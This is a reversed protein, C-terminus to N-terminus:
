SRSPLGSVSSDTVPGSVRAICTLPNASSRGVQVRAQDGACIRRSVSVDPTVSITTTGADFCSSPVDLRYVNGQRSRVYVAGSDAVRFNEVQDGTFCAQAATSQGAAVPQNVPACAGSAGAIALLIATHKM